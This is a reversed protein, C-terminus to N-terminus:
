WWTREHATREGTHAHDLHRAETRRRVRRHHEGVEAGVDDPNSAGTGLSRSGVADDVRVGAQVPGSGTDLGVELVGGVQCADPLHDQTRVDEDLTEPRPHHFPEAESGLDTVVCRLEDIGPHGPPSLVTVARQEGTM